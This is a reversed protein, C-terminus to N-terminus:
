KGRWIIVYKEENCFEKFFNDRKVMDLFIRFVSKILNEWEYGLLFNKDNFIDEKICRKEIKM